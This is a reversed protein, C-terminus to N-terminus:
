PSQAAQQPQSLVREERSGRLLLEIPVSLQTCPATMGTACDRLRRLTVPPPGEDSAAGLEVQAALRGQAEGRPGLPYVDVLFVDIRAGRYLAMLFSSSATGSAQLERALWQSVLVDRPSLQGDCPDQVTALPPHSPPAGSALPPALARFPVVEARPAAGGGAGKEALTPGSGTPTLAYSRWPVEATPEGGMAGATRVEFGQAKRFLALSAGKAPEPGLRLRGLMSGLRDEDCSVQAATRPASGARDLAVRRVLVAGNWWGALFGGSLPILVARETATAASAGLAIDRAIALGTTGDLARARLQPTGGVSESWAVLLDGAASCAVVPPSVTGSLSSRVSWVPAMLRGSPDVRGARISTRDGRRALWAVAFGGGPMAVIMPRALREGPEPPAITLESGMGGPDIRRGRLSGNGEDGSAWVAFSSGDGASGLAPAGDPAGDGVLAAEGLPEGSSAFRRLFLARKRLDQREAGWIVTFGGSVDTAVAPPGPGGSEGTIAFPPGLPMGKGDLLRARLAAQGERALSRWVIVLREPGLAALAPFLAVEESGGGVGVEPRSPKGEPDLLRVILDTGAFNSEDSAGRPRAWAIALAGGSLRVAALPPRSAGHDVDVRVTPRLSVFAPLSGAETATGQGVVAALAPLLLLPAIWSRPKSL